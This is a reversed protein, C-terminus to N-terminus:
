TSADFDMGLDDLRYRKARVHFETYGMLYSRYIEALQPDDSTLAEIKRTTVLAEEAFERLVMMPTKQEAAARMHVHNNTEGSLLEKYFSLIDNIAITMLDIEPLLQLYRQDAPDRWGKPFNFHGYPPVLGTKLRLFYPYKTAGPSILTDKSAHEIYMGVFADLSSIVISDAGIRPYYEHMELLQLAARQLVPHPQKQGRIFYRGFEALDEGRHNAVDDIYLWYTTFIAILIRHQRPTHAYASEAITCGADMLLEIADSSLGINWSIIESTVIARIEADPSTCPSKYGLRLLFDRLIDKAQAIDDSTPIPPSHLVSLVPM